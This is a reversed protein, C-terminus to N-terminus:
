VVIWNKIVSILYETHLTLDNYQDGRHILLHMLIAHLSFIIFTHLLLKTKDKTKLNKKRINHM